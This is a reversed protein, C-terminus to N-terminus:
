EGYGDDDDCDLSGMTLGDRCLSESADKSSLSSGM